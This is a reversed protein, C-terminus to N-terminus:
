RVARRVQAGAAELPEPVDHRDHAAVHQHGREPRDDGVRQEGAPGAVRGQALLGLRRHETPVRRFPWSRCRCRCRGCRACCRRRATSCGCSPRAAPAATDPAALLRQRDDVTLAATAAVLHSLVTPDDPLQEGLAQPTPRPDADLYQRFAGAGAAGAPRRAGRRGAPEPLWEVEATLYPTRAPRCTPSRSGGGASRSSTSGGTRCSPSRACSPPAASRTAAHGGRTPRRRDTAPGAAPLTEWGHRIAVM